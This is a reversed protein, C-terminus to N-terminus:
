RGVRVAFVLRKVGGGVDILQGSGASVEVIECGLNANEAEGPGTRKMEANTGPNASMVRLTAGVPRVVDILLRNEASKAIEARNTAVVKAAGDGSCTLVHWHAGAIAASDDFDLEDVIDLTTYRGRETLTLTRRAAKALGAYLSSTDWVTQVFQAGDSANVGERADILNAQGNLNLPRGDLTVLNHSLDNKRFYRLGGSYQSTEPLSFYGQPYTGAGSLEYGLDSFWSDKGIRLIFSGSDHHAHTQTLRGGKQLVLWDGGNVKATLRAIDFRHDTSAYVASRRASDTLPGTPAASLLTFVRTWDGATHAWALPAHITENMVQQRFIARGYNGIRDGGNLKGGFVFPFSAPLARQPSDAFSYLGVTSVGSKEGRWFEDDSFLLDAEAESSKLLLPNFAALDHRGLAGALTDTFLAYSQM